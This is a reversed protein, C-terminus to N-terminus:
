LKYRLGVYVNRGFIPGWVQSADFRDSFPNEADIIPQAQTFNFLNEGGAYLEFNPNFIKRVQANSVFFPDSYIQESPLTEDWWLSPIRQKGRWSLTYDFHWDNNTEYALNIFAKHFANFPVTQITGGYEAKSINYRYAVRIDMGLIKGYDFQAQASHGFSNGNQNYFLITGQNGTEMDAIIQNEFHTYYYDLSLAGAKIGTSIHYTYNLGFNWTVEPDLGYPNDNEESLIQYDRHSAFLGPNEAFINATRWGKGAVMRMVHADNIPYRIHLRPIFMLGYLNHYDTRAGLVLDYRNNFPKLNLEAFAGPIIETRDFTADTSFGNVSEEINDTTLSLGTKIYEQKSFIKKQYLLNLFLGNHTQQTSKLGFVNDVEHRLISYQFGVSEFGEEDFVKGVKGYFEYKNMKLDSGWVSDSFRNLDPIYQMQGATKQSTNLRIGVQGQWGNENQYHVRGIGSLGQNLPNDLFGDNNFDLRLQRTDAHMLVATSLNENLRYKAFVNAEYRGGRNGYLNLYFKEKDRPKRLEINIQGTSSEFGNVVSGVGKSLQISSIWAGPIMSLGQINSLSRVDPILERTIQVYKGALGLMQIQRTGTVADTFSVDISPSTEFSESLSCCAAKCLEEESINVTQIPALYSIESTNKRGILIVEKLKKGQSLEIEIFEASSLDVTQDEFGVYSIEAISTEPIRKLEFYGNMDTTTGMSSDKWIINVGILAEKNGDKDRGSIKGKVFEAPAIQSPVTKIEQSNQTSEPNIKNAFEIDRYQCCGDLAKYAWNPAAYKENDYGSQSLKKALKDLDFITNMVYLHLTGTELNYDAFIVGKQNQAVEEINSKCMECAGSVLLDVNEQASSTSFFCTIFVLTILGYFLSKVSEM